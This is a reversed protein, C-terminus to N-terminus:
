NVKARRECNTKQCHGYLDLRHSTLKMEHLTAVKEQLREIEDNEFEIVAGCDLCILHDHHHGPTSIEYVFRGEGGFTKQEALGAEALLNLTRYITALGVNHGDRRAAEHLGEASTHDNLSIFLEVIQRRQKTQKLNKRSLYLDLADWFWRHADAKPAATRSKVSKGEKV